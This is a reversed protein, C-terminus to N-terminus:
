CSIPTDGATLSVHMVPQWKGGVELRRMHAQQAAKEQEKIRQKYAIQAELDKRLAEEKLRKKEHEACQQFPSTTNCSHASGSYRHGACLQSAHM